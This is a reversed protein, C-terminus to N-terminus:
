IEKQINLIGVEVIHSVAKDLDNVSFDSRIDLWSRQKPGGKPFVSQIDENSVAKDEEGQFKALGTNLCQVEGEKSDLYVIQEIIKDPPVPSALLGNPLQMPTVDKGFGVSGGFAEATASVFDDENGGALENSQSVQVPNELLSRVAALRQKVYSESVENKSAVFGRLLVYRKGVLTTNLDLMMNIFRVQNDRYDLLQAASAERNKPFVISSDPQLPRYDDDGNVNRYTILNGTLPDKTLQQGIIDLPSPLYEGPPKGNALQLTTTFTGAYTFSHSVEYVYYLLGKEPVYVVDGPEYYENGALTLTARNIRVRQLQLLFISYPRCHREPDSAFPLTEEHSSFGFQRWLDFDTAGAWYYRNEFDRQHDKGIIPSDGLVDVRTYEPPDEYYAATIIDAERIIFRKGSGPGLLNRTDDEILHDFLGGKTADGTFIDAVTKITNNVRNLANVAGGLIGDAEEGEGLVEGSLIDGIEELEQQKERNRNLVNVLKDRASITQEMKKLYNEAKKINDIETEDVSSDKNFIFFDQTFEEERNLLGEAPDAGFNKRFEDRISNVTEPTAFANSSEGGPSVATTLINNGLTRFNGSREEGTFQSEQFIPDFEGLLTQTDGFIIDGDDGLTINLSVGNGRLQDDLEAAKGVNVRVPNKRTASRKKVTSNLIGGPNVGFFRLSNAGKFGQNNDSGGTKDKRLRPINPILNSDPFRGLLLALIVIRINLSHIERKLSVTRTEFIDKLFPPVVQKDSIKEMEFMAKLVSLPTRNWQPPRFELHGQTNCNHSLTSGIIFTHNDEVEIDYVYDNYEISEISKPFNKNIIKRNNCHGNKNIYKSIEYFYHWEKLYPLFRILNNKGYIHIKDYKDITSNISLMKLLQHVDNILFKSKSSLSIKRDYTADGIFLGSLYSMKINNYAQWIINPINKDYSKKYGFISKYIKSIIINSFLVTCRTYKEYMYIHGDINFKNKIIKVLKEAINKESYNLAYSVQYGRSKKNKRNEPTSNSGEATFLGFAWALDEDVKVIKPINKNTLLDFSEGNDKIDKHDKFLDYVNIIQSIQISPLKEAFGIETKLSIDEACIETLDPKLLRHKNSLKITQGSGDRISLMFEDNKLKRKIVNKVRKWEINKNKDISLVEDGVKINKIFKSSIFNDKKVLIISDKALCFLEMNMYDSTERCKTYVDVYMGQFIKYNSDRIAFLYPRIDTNQDYQDSVIFLNQDRNLRTDEIRRQAGVIMMARTIQHDANFNGTLPLVRNRGFLNFNSTVLDVEKSAGSKLGAQVQEQIALNINYIQDAIKNKLARNVIEGDKGELENQIRVLRARRSQLDRIQENIGFRTISSSATQQLTDNSLTIMRYPRFNGFHTNQRRIVDLVAALPEQPSLSSTVSDRSINHSQLAQQVFTEVNYPQGVILISLINAIDLNNFVNEAVTLGYQQRNLKLSADDENIPDNVTFPATATIIGTKWRYVLGHPHQLVKAGRLSGSRNFQGQILNDETAFQGNLIGNDYSLLGSKLLQKNEDLLEPGAGVLIRRSDDTRLKYPTFPDELVGSPDSVAPEIMFRSWKLWEMNDQCSINAEWKGDSFNETTSKVVGGYVHRFGFSEDSFLRLRKYTEFDLRKNTFLVREAELITEDITIDDLDQFESNEYDFTFRNGRIYYHIADGPNVLLKGMYFTRMRDRIYDIDITNDFQGLGLMELGASVVSQANFAPTVGTNMGALNDLLGITGLLAEEIAIEIDDETINLIRYPDELVISASKSNKDLGVSTNFRQFNTIEIVGTGPGTEYNDVNQPDVIWTTLQNDKAFANRKVLKMLDEIQGVYGAQQLSGSVASQVLGIISDADQEQNYLIYRAENLLSIYLELNIERTEKVNDEFKTLAEYARVQTVKYAFLAKTARLFMKESRDLWQLDNTNRFSSFAKKKVLISAEPTLSTINRTKSSTSTIRNEGVFISVGSGFLNTEAPLNVPMNGKLADVLYSQISRNIINIFNPM